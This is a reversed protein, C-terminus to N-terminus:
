WFHLFTVSSFRVHDEELIMPVNVTTRCLMFRRAAPHEMESALPKSATITAIAPPVNPWSPQGDWTEMGQVRHLRSFVQNAYAFAGSGVISLQLTGCAGHRQLLYSSLLRRLRLCLCLSSLLRLSYSRLKRGMRGIIGLIDVEFRWHQM